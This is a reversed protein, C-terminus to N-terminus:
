FGCRCKPIHAIHRQLVATCARRVEDWAEGDHSFMWCEDDGDGSVAVRLVTVHAGFYTQMGPHRTATVVAGKGASNIARVLDANMRNMDVGHNKEMEDVTFGNSAAGTLRFHVCGRAAAPTACWGDDTEVYELRMDDAILQRASAMKESLLALKCSSDSRAAEGGENQNEHADAELARLAALSTGPDLNPGIM